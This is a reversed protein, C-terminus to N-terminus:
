IINIHNIKLNGMNIMSLIGYQSVNLRFVTHALIVRPPPPPPPICNVATWPSPSRLHPFAPSRRSGRSPSRTSPSLARPVAMERARERLIQIDMNWLRRGDCPLVCATNPCAPAEPLVRLLCSRRTPAPSLNASSSLRPPALNNM